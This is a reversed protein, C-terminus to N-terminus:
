AKDYAQIADDYKGQYYLTLGKRLWDESTQQGFASILFAMLLLWLILIAKTRVPLERRLWM